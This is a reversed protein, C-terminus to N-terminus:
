LITLAADRAARWVRVAQRTEVVDHVRLLQAGKQAAMLHLAVSGGLRNDADVEGDVAGIMRKRSAGVLLPFGLAHFLALGNHLNLDDRVGKGFGFGPDIIIRERAVGAAMVAATRAHLWDFVDLLSDTYENGGGHPNSGQSPAHMLVVPCDAAVAVDTARDDYGLASIDNIIAAGASLALEMVSAKRTDISIATGALALREIIPIVRNAEDGEWVPKAGPRTSEGGVDIIAAGEASMTVGRAVAADVDINKGGDSYSDPTANLIGMIQPESLRVTRGKLQLPPHVTAVAAAQVAAREALVDPLHTLMRSFDEVPVLLERARESPTRVRVHWAAFWILSDGIRAVRGDLGHPRDVFCAPQCYILTDGRLSGLDDFTLHDFM